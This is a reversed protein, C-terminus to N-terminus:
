KNMGARSLVEGIRVRLAWADQPRLKGYDIVGADGRGGAETAKRRPSLKLASRVAQGIAWRPEKMLRSL